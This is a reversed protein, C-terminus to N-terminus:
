GNGIRRGMLRHWRTHCPRCCEVTPWKDCEDGFHERPALHHVELADVEDACIPCRKKSDDRALMPMAECEAPTFYRKPIYLKPGDAGPVPAKVIRQCRHCWAFVHFGTGIATRHFAVAPKHEPLLLDGGTCRECKPLDIV